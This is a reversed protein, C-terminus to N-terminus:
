VTSSSGYGNAVKVPNLQIYQSRQAYLLMEERGKYLWIVGTFILITDTILIAILIINVTQLSIEHQSALKEPFILGLVTLPTSLEFNIYFEKLLGVVIILLCIPPRLFPDILHENKKRLAIHPVTEIGAMSLRPGSLNKANYIKGTKREARLENEKIFIHM